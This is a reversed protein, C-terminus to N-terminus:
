ASVGPRRLLLFGLSQLCLERIVEGPHPPNHMTM